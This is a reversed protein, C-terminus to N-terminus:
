ASSPMRSRTRDRPSPSTYLLCINQHIISAAFLVKQYKPNKFLERMKDPVTFVVHRHPVKLLIHHIKDAWENAAKTGCSTCLRCKCTFPVYKKTGCKPCQYTKFGNKSTKCKKLGEVNELGVLRISDRYRVKYDEWANCSFLIIAITITITASTKAKTNLSM